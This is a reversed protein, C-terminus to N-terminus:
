SNKNPNPLLLYWDRRVKSEATSSKGAEPLNGPLPHSVKNVFQKRSFPIFVAASLQPFLGPASKSELGIENPSKDTKNSRSYILLGCHIPM